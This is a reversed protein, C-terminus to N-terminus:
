EGLYRKVLNYVKDNNKEIIEVMREEIEEKSTAKLQDLM